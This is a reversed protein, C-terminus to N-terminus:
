GGYPSPNACSCSGSSSPCRWTSRPPVVAIAPLQRQAALLYPILTGGGHRPMGGAFGVIGYRVASTLALLAGM